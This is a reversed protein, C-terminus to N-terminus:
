SPRPLGTSFAGGPSTPLTSASCPATDLGGEVLQQRTRAVTDVSTDLADAIQGDSWDEGADSADAKLLIRAKLAQRAPAKGKQILGNLREREEASLKVIYKNVAPQKATM